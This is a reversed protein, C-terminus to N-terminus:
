VPWYTEHLVMDWFAYEYRSSTLFHHELRKLERNPLGVALEELLESLWIHAQAFENSSYSEIWRAYKNTELNKGNNKKLLTAIEYYDWACPLLCAVLDALTGHHAANHMYNTYAMTVPTPLTDELESTSVGFENAYKRHLNMEVQLTNNLTAAFKTMTELNNAKIVGLAFLKSYEALYLYDQKLYYAFKQESLTGDGIGQVFPHEHNKRWIEKAQAHLYQSFTVTKNVEM